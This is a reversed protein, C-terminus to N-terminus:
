RTTFFFSTNKIRRDELRERDGRPSYSHLTGSEDAESNVDMVEHHLFIFHEHTTPKWNGDMVAHHLLIVLELTMPRWDSEIV